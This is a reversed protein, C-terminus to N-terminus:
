LFSVVTKVARHAAKNRNVEIMAEYQDLRFRHTIM